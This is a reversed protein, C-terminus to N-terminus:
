YQLIESADNLNIPCDNGLWIFQLAVQEKFDSDIEGDFSSLVIVAVTLPLVLTFIVVYIM